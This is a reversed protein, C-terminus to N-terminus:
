VEVVEYICFSGHGNDNSAVAYFDDGEQDILEVKYIEPDADEDRLDGYNEDEIDFRELNMIVSRMDSDVDSLKLENGMILDDRMRLFKM